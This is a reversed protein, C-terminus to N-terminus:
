KPTYPSKLFRVHNVVTIKRPIEDDRIVAVKPGFIQDLPDEVSGDLRVRKTPSLPSSSMIAFNPLLSKMFSTIQKNVTFHRM